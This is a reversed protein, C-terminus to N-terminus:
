HMDMGAMGGSGGPANEVQFRVRVAGAHRFTLTMPVVEGVRFAHTPGILMLHYGGPALTVTQGSGIQLGGAVPRMQMVGGAAIIMQHVEVSRADPSSAAVLRDPALGLNSIAAYGAATPAGPPNPRVWPNAIRISGQVVVPAATALSAFCLAIALIAGGVFPKM